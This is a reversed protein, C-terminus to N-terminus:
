IEEEGYIVLCACKECLCKGNDYIDHTDEQCTMNGCEVCKYEQVTRSEFPCGSAHGSSQHCIYCMM